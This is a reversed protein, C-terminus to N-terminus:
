EGFAHPREPAPLTLRQGAPVPIEGGPTKPHQRQRGPLDPADLAAVERAEGPHAEGPQAVRWGGAYGLRDAGEALGADTRHHDRAIVAEGRRADGALQAQQARGVLHEIAGIDLPEGVRFEVLDHGGGAGEAPRTRLRLQADDGRELTASLDDRHEAVPDVVGRREALRVDANGHAPPPRVERLLRGVDNELVVAERRDTDRDLFSPHDKLVDPLEHDVQEAAIQRLDQHQEAGPEGAIGGRQCRQLDEPEVEQRVGKGCQRERHLRALGADHPSLRRIRARGDQRSGREPRRHSVGSQDREGRQGGEGPTKSVTAASGRGREREHRQGERLDEM